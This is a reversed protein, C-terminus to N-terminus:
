PSAPANDSSVAPPTVPTGPPVDLEAWNGDGLDRFDHSVHNWDEVSLDIRQDTGMSLGPAGFGKFSELATVTWSPSPAEARATPVEAPQGGTARWHRPVYDNTLATLDFRAAGNALLVPDTIVVVDLSETTWDTGLLGGNVAHMLRSRPDRFFLDYTGASREVVAPEGVMFLGTDEVGHQATAHLLTGAPGRYFSSGGGAAVTAVGKNQVGRHLERLMVSALTNWSVMHGPAVEDIELSFSGGGSMEMGQMKSRVAREYSRLADDYSAGVQATNFEVPHEGFCCDDHRNLVQVQRRGAGVAGLIYLDVYGVLAYFQPDTQEADGISWGSRLALPLSGAVPVSLTIRPDLAAYVTTTWGGGSLGMMSFDLYRPFDDADAQTQLYNLYVAVPELFFKLGSGTTPTDVLTAHPILPADPLCGPMYVALVSYGEILLNRITRQMGYGADRMGAGDNFTTAHGHHLVVLRNTKSQAPIFHHAMSQVGGDMVLFLDDVRALNVLGDVPSVVNKKVVTPLKAAPFGDSGWLFAVMQQRKQGVDFASSIAHSESVLPHPIGTPVGNVPRPSPPSMPPVLEGGSLMGQPATAVDAAPAHGDVPSVGCGVGGWLFLGGATIPLITLFAVRLARALSVSLGKVGCM